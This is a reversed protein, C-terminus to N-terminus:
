RRRCFLGVAALLALACASPEPLVIFQFTAPAPTFGAVADGVADGVFVEFSMSYSGPMDATFYDHQMVGDWQWLDGNNAYIENMSWAGMGEIANGGDYVKFTSGAPQTTGTRKIWIAGGAPLTTFFGDPLWGHQANFSVDELVDFKSPTFDMGYGSTMTVPSAPPTNINVALVTGTLSVNAHKMGNNAPNGDGNTMPPMPPAGALLTECTMLAAVAASFFIRLHM